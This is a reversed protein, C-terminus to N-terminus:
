HAEGTEALAKDKAVLADNMGMVASEQAVVAKDRAVFAGDLEATLDNTAQEQKDVKQMVSEDKARIYAIWM